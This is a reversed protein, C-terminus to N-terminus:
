YRNTSALKKEMREVEPALAEYARKANDLQKALSALERKAM